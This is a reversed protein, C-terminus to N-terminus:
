GRLAVQGVSRASSQWVRVCSRLDDVGLGVRRVLPLRTQPEYKRTMSPTTLIEVSAGRCTKIGTEAQRHEGLAGAAPLGTTEQAEPEAPVM